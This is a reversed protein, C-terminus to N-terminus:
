EGVRGAGCLSSAASRTLVDLIKGSMGALPVVTDVGGMQIAEKPMGFVVCSEEDQALTFAGAQRMAALGRAGDAGMGTLIAGVANPGVAQAVSHFLVDVSPRQHFVPPGDKIEVCYGGGRHRLTMHRNGPAVLALGPEVPDNNRAERVEMLCLQNLREAFTATFNAPMHQVIVTGPTNEPLGLLVQKIAETGGTSAGIALVRHSATSLDRPVLAVPPAPSVSLAQRRLVRSAAMAARIRDILMQTIDGISYAEGPKALVDVAGLELARLAAESGQPTLSSVVIVPLPHYKMLKALFALGGMRPMELDLTLVDPNLALIKERAVYPDIATGVVEIDAAKSLEASLVRRVVASDDVVLVKIM